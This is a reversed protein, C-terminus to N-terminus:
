AFSLSLGDFAIQAEVSREDGLRRVLAAMRRADGRVIGSGCHTFTACKVEEEACWDLQQRISAHGILQRGVRRVM